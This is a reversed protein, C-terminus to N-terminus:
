GDESSDSDNAAPRLTMNTSASEERRADQAVFPLKESSNIELPYLRQFSRLKEGDATRVRAVRSHGDAGSFVEIVIGLPWNICKGDIELLDVEGVRLSEERSKGKHILMALYENRFRIRLDQRLKQVFRLRINLSKSGIEDLDTTECSPISQLFCAPTLQKLGESNDEIYTLLRSNITAEYDCLITELEEYDLSKKGLIRRLMEKLMRVMREWGGGWWAATPPNFNWKIKKITSFSM